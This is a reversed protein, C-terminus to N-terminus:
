TVRETFLGGKETEEETSKVKWKVTLIRKRQKKRERERDERKGAQM